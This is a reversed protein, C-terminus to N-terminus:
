LYFFVYNQPQRDKFVFHNEITSYAKYVFNISIESYNSTLFILSSLFLGVPKLSLFLLIIVSVISTKQSQPPNRNLFEIVDNVGLNTVSVTKKLIPYSDVMFDSFM